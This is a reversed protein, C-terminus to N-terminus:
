IILLRPALFSRGVDSHRIAALAKLSGLLESQTLPTEAQHQRRSLYAARQEPRGAFCTEFSPLIDGYVCEDSLCVGNFSRGPAVAKKGSVAATGDAVFCVHESGEEGEGSARM